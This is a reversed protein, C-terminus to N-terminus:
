ETLSQVLEDCYDQLQQLVAQGKVDKAENVKLWAKEMDREYRAITESRLLKDRRFENWQELENSNLTEPYNRARYRFLMEVLRTDRFPLDLRGLDAPNTARVVEMLERDNDGFFGGSYIMYDPDTEEAFEEASFVASVKRKIESDGQLQEWHDRSKDLDIDFEKAKEPQLVAPSTLIPCRNAHLTKLPVRSAGAPLKDKATYVREKIEDISLNRWSSPDERLDYVVVGNKNSPDSCIPMVLAMCGQSAPYRMSVHLIPKQTVLDIESQVVSKDKLKYVYDYLKPQKKRVLKAMEITAIVDALADHADSHEIGNAVTLQDLKFSVSGNEKRPWEIGDPRTGACLRLMDIIDWRSNGNKWEREYPDFFNRYLLQRTIEDDFRISNYGAVCTGPVSFEANIRKIFEAEPVGDANAKQPTIGTVLCAFPNPYFDNAVNCYIVLPEGIINLDEDTRIGAFQCARDRRPDAGFTEFDYWYISPSTM